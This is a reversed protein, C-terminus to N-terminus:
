KANQRCKPCLGEFIMRHREIKFGTQAAALTDYDSKYGLPADSVSGCGVCFLHYHRETRLDYRDAAPVKVHLIEGEEALVNLNRYVTARSIRADKERVDLYIEDASPHDTRGRVSDLVLRRQRTNRKIKM